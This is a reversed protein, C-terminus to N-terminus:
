QVAKTNVRKLGLNLSNPQKRFDLKSSNLIAMASASVGVLLLLYLSAIMLV